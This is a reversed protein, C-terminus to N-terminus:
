LKHDDPVIAREGPDIEEAFAILACGLLRAKRPILNVYRTEGRKPEGIRLEIHRNLKRVRVIDKHIEFCERLAKTLNAM